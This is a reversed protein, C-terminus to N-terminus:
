VLWQVLDLHGEGSAFWLATRSTRDKAELNAGMQALWQVVDTHGENSAHHLATNGGNDGVELDGGEELFIAKVRDLDGIEAATLLELDPPRLRAIVVAAFFLHCFWRM